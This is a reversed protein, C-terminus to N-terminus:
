GLFYYTCFFIFSVMLLVIGAIKRKIIAQEDTFLIKNFYENIFLLKQPKFLFYFSVTFSIIGLLIFFIIM